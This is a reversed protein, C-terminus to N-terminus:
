EFGMAARALERLRAKQIKNGNASPTVPFADIAFIREPVKYHAMRRGCDAILAQEDLTAGASPIVFAVPRLGRATEVGVVQSAAVAPHKDIVAEIELPNVLFGSLRLADGMRALFVYEAGSVTYGLDGSRLYGDPTFAEASAQPDGYYGLMCSPVAFELEGHEGHAVIRGSAPDRARVRGEAAVLVGGGLERQEPPAHESHRSLMAQLESSGYVGV